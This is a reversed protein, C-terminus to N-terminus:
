FLAIDGESQNPTGPVAAKQVTDFHARLRDLKVPGIISDADVHVGLPVSEQLRQMLGSVENLSQILLDVSQLITVSTHNARLHAIDQLLHAELRALVKGLDRMAHDTGALVTVLPLHEEPQAEAAASM